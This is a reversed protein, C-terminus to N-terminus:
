ADYLNTSWGKIIKFRVVNLEPCLSSGIKVTCKEISIQNPYLSYEIQEVAWILSEKVSSYNNFFYLYWDVFVFDNLLIVPHKTSVFDISISTIEATLQYKIPLADWIYIPYNCRSQLFQFCAFLFEDIRILCM